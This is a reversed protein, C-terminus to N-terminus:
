NQAKVACAAVVNVIDDVSCGRSLDNYPKALGQSLPGFAIANALRQVLKYGINGANLDPFVLVNANGGIVSDPAKSKAVKPVIAADAQLEGDLKLDPRRERVLKTAEVVKDVMEHKASGKTSFSLMAVKPEDGVLARRTDATAIAIDALESANPNPIIACDAFFINVDKQGLYEPIIMSFCSSVISTGKAKGILHFAATMVDGTSNVAGAVGGDIVGKRVMMAGYFLEKSMKEKAEALTMGKQKRLEYYENAYEEFNKASKPEIIVAEGINLKLESVRKRIADENGLLTVHAIKERMLVAAAELMRDDMAEPLVIRKSNKQAKSRISDIFANSM